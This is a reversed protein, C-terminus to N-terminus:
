DNTTDPRGLGTKLKLENGTTIAMLNFIPGM